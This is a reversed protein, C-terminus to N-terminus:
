QQVAPVGEYIEGLSKLLNCLETTHMWRANSAGQRQGEKQPEQAVGNGRVIALKSPKQLSLAREVAHFELAKGSHVNILTLLQFLRDAVEPTIQNM